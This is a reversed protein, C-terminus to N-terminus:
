LCIRRSRSAFKTLFQGMDVSRTLSKEFALQVLAAKREHTMSHRTPRLVRTLASFTNECTATSIGITSAGAYLAYVSPFAECYMHMIKTASALSCTSSLKGKIFNSAPALEGDLINTNLKMLGALYLV